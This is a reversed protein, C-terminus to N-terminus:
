GGALRALHRAFGGQADGRQRALQGVALLAIRRFGCQKKDLAVRRAAAGRPPLGLGPRLRSNWATSGSRPLIRLTSRTRMSLISDLWSIPVRIVASPAPM